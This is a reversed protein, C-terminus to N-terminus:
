RGLFIFTTDMNLFLRYVREIDPILEPEDIYVFRPYERITTGLFGKEMAEVSSYVNSTDMGRSDMVEKMTRTALIVDYPRYNNLIYHTKGTGRGIDIHISCFSSLWEYPRMSPKLHRYKVRNKFNEDIAMRLIKDLM